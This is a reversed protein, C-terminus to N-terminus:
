GERHLARVLIFGVAVIAFYWGVIWNFYTEQSGQQCALFIYFLVRNTSSHLFSASGLLKERLMLPLREIPGDIVLILLGFLAQYWHLVWGLPDVFNLINVIQFVSVIVLVLGGFFSLLTFSYPNTQVHLLVESSARRLAHGASRVHAASIGAIQPGGAEVEMGM